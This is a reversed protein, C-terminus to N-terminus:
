CSECGVHQGNYECLCCNSGSGDDGPCGTCSGQGYYTTNPETDAQDNPKLKGAQIAMDIHDAFHSMMAGVFSNHKSGETRLKQVFQTNTMKSESFAFGFSVNISVLVPGAKRVLEDDVTVIEHSM